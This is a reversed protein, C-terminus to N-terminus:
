LKDFFLTPQQTNNHGHYIQQGLSTIASSYRMRKGYKNPLLPEISLVEFNRSTYFHGSRYSYQRTDKNLSEIYIKLSNTGLGDSLFGRIVGRIPRNEELKKAQSRTLVM